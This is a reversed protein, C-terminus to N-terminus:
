SESIKLEKHIIYPLNPLILGLELKDQLFWKNMDEFSYQIDNYPYKALELIYRIPQGKYPAEWYGLTLKDM